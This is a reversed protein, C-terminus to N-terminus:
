SSGDPLPTFPLGPATLSTVPFQGPGETRSSQSIRGIARRRMGTGHQRVALRRGVIPDGEEGNRGRSAMTIALERGASNQCLVADRTGEWWSKEKSDRGRIRRRSEHLFVVKGINANAGQSRVRLLTFGIKTNTRPCLTRVLFGCVGPAVGRTAREIYPFVIRFPSYQLSPSFGLIGWYPWKSPLFSGM